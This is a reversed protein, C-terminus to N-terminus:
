FLIRKYKRDGKSNWESLKWVYPLGPIKSEVTFEGRKWIESIQQSSLILENQQYDVDLKEYNGYNIETKEPFLTKPLNFIFNEDEKKWTFLHAEIYEIINDILKIDEEKLNEKQYENMKFPIRPPLNMILTENEM